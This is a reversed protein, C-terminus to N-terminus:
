RAGAPMVVREHFLCALPDISSAGSIKQAEICSTRHHSEDVYILKLGYVLILIQNDRQLLEAARELFNTSCPLLDAKVPAVM